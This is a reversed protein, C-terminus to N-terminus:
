RHAEAMALRRQEFAEDDIEAGGVAALVRRARARQFGTGMSLSGILLRGSVKARVVDVTGIQHKTTLEAFKTFSRPRLRFVYLNRQTAM